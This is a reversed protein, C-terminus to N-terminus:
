IALYRWTTFAASLAAAQLMPWGRGERPFFVLHLLFVVAASVIPSVFLWGKRATDNSLFYTPHIVVSIAGAACGLIVFAVVRLASHGSTTPRRGNFASSVIGALVDGFLTLVIDLLVDM